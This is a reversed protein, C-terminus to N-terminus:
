RLVIVESRVEPDLGGAVDVKLRLEWRSRIKKGRYTIPAKGSIHFEFPLEFLSRAEDAPFCKKMEWSSHNGNGKGYTISNCLAVQVERASMLEPEGVEVLGKLVGGRSASKPANIRMM